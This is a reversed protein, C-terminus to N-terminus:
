KGRGRLKGLPHRDLVRFGAARRKEDSHLLAVLVALLYVVIYVIVVGILILPTQSMMESLMASTM